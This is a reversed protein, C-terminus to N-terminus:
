SKVEVLVADKRDHRRIVPLLAVAQERSLRMAHDKHGKPVWTTFVAGRIQHLFWEGGKTAISWSGPSALLPTTVPHLSNM